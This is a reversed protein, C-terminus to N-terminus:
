KGFQFGSGMAYRKVAMGTTPSSSTEASVGVRSSTDPSSLRPASRITTPTSTLPRGASATANVM